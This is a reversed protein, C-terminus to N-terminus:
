VNKFKLPRARYKKKETYLNKKRDMKSQRLRSTASKKVPDTALQSQVKKLWSILSFESGQLDKNTKLELFTEQWRIELDKKVAAGEKTEKLFYAFLALFESLALGRDFADKEAQLQSLSDAM